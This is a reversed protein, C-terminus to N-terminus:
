KRSLFIYIKVDRIKLLEKSVTEEGIAGSKWTLNKFNESLERATINEM